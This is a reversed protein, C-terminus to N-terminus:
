MIQRDFSCTYNQDQTDCIKLKCNLVFFMRFIYRRTTIKKKKKKKQSTGLYQAGLVAM